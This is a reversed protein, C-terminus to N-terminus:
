LPFLFILAVGDRDRQLDHSLPTSPRKTETGMCLYKEFFDHHHDDRLDSARLDDREAYGIDFYRLGTRYALLSYSQTAIGPGGGTLAFPIDFLKLSEAFRLLLVIVITPQLHPLSVHWFIQWRSQTDLLANEVLDDPVGQLAALLVLFCFPTWQWIDVLTVSFIAWHPNSLFPIGLFGLPGGAEYFITFFLYRGRAADRLDAPDHHHAVARAPLSPQFLVALVLRLIIEGPVAIIVFIFTV